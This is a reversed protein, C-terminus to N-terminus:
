HCLLETNTSTTGTRQKSDSTEPTGCSDDVHRDWAGEHFLRGNLGRGPGDRNAILFTSHQATKWNSRVEEKELMSWVGLSVVRVQQGRLGQGRNRRSEEDFKCGMANGLPRFFVEM